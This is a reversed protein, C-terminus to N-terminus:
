HSLAKKIIFVKIAELQIEDASQKWLISKIYNMLHTKMLGTAKVIVPIIEVNELDCTQRFDKKAGEANLLTKKLLELANNDNLINITKALATLDDACTEVVLKTINANIMVSILSSLSSRRIIIM